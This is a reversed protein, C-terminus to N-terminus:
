YTGALPAMCCMVIAVFLANFLTVAAARSHGCRPGMGKWAAPRCRLARSPGVVPRCATRAACSIKGRQLAWNTRRSEEAAIVEIRRSRSSRSDHFYFSAVLETILWASVYDIIPTKEDFRENVAVLLARRLCQFLLASTNWMPSTWPIIACLSVCLTRGSKPNHGRLGPWQAPGRVTAVCEGWLRSLVYIVSCCRCPSANIIMILGWM